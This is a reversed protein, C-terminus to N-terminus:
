RSRGHSEYRAYIWDGIVNTAVTVLVLLIAPAATAWANESLYSRNEAIMRGWDSSGPPVGLGLFSLSSLDVIGYTFRLFFAAVMFPSIAPLLHRLIIRWEPVGLTRAAEVYPLHARAIVAARLLRVNQPLGFVLLVGIALWWGGGTVGVVVIAVVAAPVSYLVDTIRSVIADVPGRFYGAVLALAGALVTTSSALVLPGALGTRAGAIVRSAIDRGLQDTGFLHDHSPAALADAADILSPDQPALGPFAAFVVATVVVACAILVLVPSRTVARLWARLPRAEEEGPKAVAAPVADAM